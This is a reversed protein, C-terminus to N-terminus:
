PVVYSEGVLAEGALLLQGDSLTLSRRVSSTPMGIRNICYVNEIIREINYVFGVEDTLRVTSM